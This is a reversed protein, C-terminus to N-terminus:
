ARDCSGPDRGLLGLSSFIFPHGGYCIPDIVALGWASSHSGGDKAALLVKADLINWDGGCSGTLEDEAHAGGKGAACVEFNVTAAVV